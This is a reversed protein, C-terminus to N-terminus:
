KVVAQSRKNKLVERAKVLNETVADLKKKSRSQGGLRGLQVANQNKSM